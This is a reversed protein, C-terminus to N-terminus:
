MEVNASSSLEFSLSKVATRDDHFALARMGFVAELILMEGCNAVLDANM